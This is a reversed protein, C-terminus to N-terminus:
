LQNKPGPDCKHFLASSSSCLYLHILNQVQWLVPRMNRITWTWATSNYWRIVWKAVGVVYIGKQQSELRNVQHWYFTSTWAERSAFFNSSLHSIQGYKKTHNSLPDLTKHETCWTTCRYRSGKSVLWKRIDSRGYTGPKLLHCPDCPHQSLEITLSNKQLM